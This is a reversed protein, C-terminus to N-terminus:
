SYPLNPSLLGPSRTDELIGFETSLTSNFESMDSGLVGVSKFFIVLVVKLLLSLCVITEFM